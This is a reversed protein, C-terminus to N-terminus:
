TVIDLDKVKVCSSRDQHTENRKASAGFFYRLIISFFLLTKYAEM